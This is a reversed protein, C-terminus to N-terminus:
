VFSEKSGKVKAGNKQGQDLFM